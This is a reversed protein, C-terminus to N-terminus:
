ADDDEDQQGKKWEEFCQLGCFHVVYDLAEESRAESAPVEKLCVNCSVVDPETLKVQDPMAERRRLFCVKVIHDIAGM